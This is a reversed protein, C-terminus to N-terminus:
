PMKSFGLAGPIGQKDLKILGDKRLHGFRRHILDRTVSITATLLFHNPLWTLGGSRILDIKTGNDHELFHSDRSLIFIYGEHAALRVSM